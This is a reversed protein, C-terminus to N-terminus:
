SSVSLTGHEFGALRKCALGHIHQTHHCRLEACVLGSQCLKFRLRADFDFVLVHGKGAHAFFQRGFQHGLRILVINQAGHVNPAWTQVVQKVREVRAQGIFLDVHCRTIGVCVQAGGAIAHAIAGVVHAQGNPSM